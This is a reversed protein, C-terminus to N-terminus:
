FLRMISVASWLFFVAAGLWALLALQRIIVPQEGGRPQIPSRLFVARTAFVFLFLSVFFRWLAWGVAATKAGFLLLLAAAALILAAREAHESFARLRSKFSEWDRTKVAGPASSDNAREAGPRKAEPKELVAFPTRKAVKKIDLSM